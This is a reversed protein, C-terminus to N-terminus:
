EFAHCSVGNKDHPHRPRGVIQRGNSLHVCFPETKCDERLKLIVLAEVVDDEPMGMVRVM